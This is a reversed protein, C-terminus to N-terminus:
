LLKNSWNLFLLFSKIQREKSRKIKHLNNGRAVSTSKLCVSPYILCCMQSCHLLLNACAARQGCWHFIYLSELLIKAIFLEFHHLQCLLTVAYVGYDCCQSQRLLKSNSKICCPRIEVLVNSKRWSGLVLHNVCVYSSFQFWSCLCFFFFSESFAPYFM